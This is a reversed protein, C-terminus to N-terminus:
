KLIKKVQQNSQNNGSNANQDITNDKKKNCVTRSYAPIMNDLYDLIEQKRQEKDM